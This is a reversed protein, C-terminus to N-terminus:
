GTDQHHFLKDHHEDPKQALREAVRLAWAFITLSLNVRSSRPLVSGDVVCLNPMGHVRGQVDVVSATPDSGMVLSGCAHVTGSLPITQPVLFPREPDEGPVPGISWSDTGTIAIHKTYLWNVIAIGPGPEGFLFQENM